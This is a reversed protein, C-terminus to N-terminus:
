ESIADIIYQPFNIDECDSEFIKLACETKCRNMYKHLNDIDTYDTQLIKNMRTLDNVSVISPELTNYNFDKLTGQRTTRDYCIRINKDNDYLAYKKKLAVIDGDNDTVVTVRLSLVKAIELFRLFSLNGVSIIDVGNTIPLQKYQNLYAKQIVLEDSPGEVLIAKKCLLMRLTDYGALKEFYKTTDNNLDSLRLTIKNALLILNKLCLKNAVFSSHTTIIIQNDGCRKKILEIFENLKSHSLHNEPEEIMVIRSNDSTSRALCMQTKLISQEGKGIFAFPIGNLYTTLVNEWANASTNNISLKIDKNSLNHESLLQQNIDKLSDHNMFADQSKRFAQAIDVISKENIIGKVVKSIFSDSFDMQKQSSDIFLPKIPIKRSTIHYERSFSSWTVKYFEIPLSQIGEKLLAEYEKQYNDDFEVKLAVGSHKERLTNGNGSFEAPGDEDFYVEILISPLALPTSNPNSLSELYEDVADKNFFHQSLENRLYHSNYIGSLGLNIAELTTSKGAENDGVLINIQKSFNIRFKKFCKFNEIYLSQVYM